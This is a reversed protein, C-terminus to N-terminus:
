LKFKLKIVIGSFYNSIYYIAKQPIYALCTIWIKLHITECYPQRRVPGFQVPEFKTRTISLNSSVLSKLFNLLRVNYVWFVCIQVFFRLNSFIAVQFYKFGFEYTSGTRVPKFQNSCKRLFHETRNLLNATRYLGIECYSKWNLIWQHM